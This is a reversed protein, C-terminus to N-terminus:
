CFNVLKEPFPIKIGFFPQNTTIKPPFLYALVIIPIPLRIHFEIRKACFAYIKSQCTKYILATLAIKSYYNLRNQINRLHVM